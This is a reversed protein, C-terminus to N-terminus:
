AKVAKPNNTSNQNNQQTRRNDTRPGTRNSAPANSSANGTNSAANTNAGRAADGLQHGGAALRENREVLQVAKESLALALNQLRSLEVGQRFVITNARQDLAAAIDENAIMKSVIAYVRTKPLDFLKSLTALSLSQYTSGYRFLYTRLGEIQLKEGLMKKISESDSLLSWIKISNLLDRATAWESDLLARAAQMIHDRTNEPPGTFVQRRNYDLMRRFTKSIVKKKADIQNESAAMSPIEILLSATFYVCELLELNIHMHFPLLRRGDTTSQSYKQVGQGLLEKLRLSSNLEQLSQQCEHILGARFACLGIQVLARNFLIQVSSEATHITSQLHSMLLLDRAKYYQNNLAYHFINCLIARTRYIPNPQRYLVACISNILSITYDESHDGTPRPTISSELAEPLESWAVNEATIIVASPKFYIHEVRRILIRSAAEIDHLPVTSTTELYIQTRLILAYLSTEHRLRDVYETTHPDIDQLSRTFEDDLREVLSVISGPIEVVGDARPPLGTELSEPEPASESIQYTKINKELLAFLANIDDKVTMWNETSIAHGSSATDFRVPILRLLIIIKEYPTTAVHMLAELIRVQDKRDTNKKGRSESISQISTFINEATFQAVRGAKGVTSFGEDEDAASTAVVAAKTKVAKAVPASKAEQAKQFAEPDAKYDAIQSEYTKNNKKIRQRATNLARANLANMKKKSSKEATVTEQLFQELESISKIYQAPTTQYQKDAREVHKNLKDFETLIVVWDNIKKANDIARICLDIEDILKDKASKVVRKSEDESDDESDSAQGKMFSKKLFRSAGTRKDGEDDSSESESESDSAEDSDEEEEESEESGSESSSSGLLEEDSSSTESDSSGGAFFRSM